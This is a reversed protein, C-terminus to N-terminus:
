NIINPHAQSILDQILLLSIFDRKHNRPEGLKVFAKRHTPHYNQVGDGTQHDTQTVVVTPVNTSKVAAAVDLFVDELGVVYEARLDIVWLVLDVRETNKVALAASIAQVNDVDREAIPALADLDVGRIIKMLLQIEGETQCGLGGAELFHLNKHVAARTLKATGPPNPVSSITSADLDHMACM